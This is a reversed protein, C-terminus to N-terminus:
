FIPVSSQKSLGYSNFVGAKIEGQEQCAIFLRFRKGTSQSNIQIYPLETEKTSLKRLRQKAQGLTLKGNRISRRMLREINSKVQVRQFSVYGAIKDEPVEKIRMLHVYDSLYNFVKQVNFNELHVKDQAFLRLKKGLFRSQYEPFSVGISSNGAGDKIAVLRGHLRSYVKEWLFNIGIEADPLLTIEIYYKMM